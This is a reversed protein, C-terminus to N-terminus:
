VVDGDDPNADQEAGTITSIHSQKGANIFGFYHLIM